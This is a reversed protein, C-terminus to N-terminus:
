AVGEPWPMWRDRGRLTYRHAHDVDDCEGDHDHELAMRDGYDANEVLVWQGPKPLTYETGDYETWRPARPLANWAAVAETETDAWPGCVGCDCEVRHKQMRGDYGSTYTDVGPTKGCVCKNIGM